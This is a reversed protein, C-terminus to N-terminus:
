KIVKLTVHIERAINFFYRALKHAWPLWAFKKNILLSSKVITFNFNFAYDSRKPLKVGPERTFYRFTEETFFRKHTPDQFAGTSLYYPVKIEVLAGPRAIRYIEAMVLDINEIHELLYECYIYEAANSKLPIGKEIDCVLDVGALLVKDIGFFGEKKHAGCGLDIKM